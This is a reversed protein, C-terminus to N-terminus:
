AVCRGEARPLERKLSHLPGSLVKLGANDEPFLISGRSDTRFALHILLPPDQMPDQGCRDQPLELKWIDWAVPFVRFVPEWTVVIQMTNLDAKHILALQGRQPTPRSQPHSVPLCMGAEDKGRTQATM